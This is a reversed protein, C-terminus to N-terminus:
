PLLDFGPVRVERQSRQRFHRSSKVDVRAFQESSAPAYWGCYGGSAVSGANRSRRRLTSSSSCSDRLPLRTLRAANSDHERGGQFMWPGTVMGTVVYARSTSRKRGVTMTRATM